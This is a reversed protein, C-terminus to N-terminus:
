QTPLQAVANANDNLRPASAATKQREVSRANPALSLAPPCCCSTSASSRITPTTPQPAAATARQQPPPPAPPPPLPATAADGLGYSSLNRLFRALPLNMPSPGENNSLLSAASGLLSTRPQAFRLPSSSKVALRHLEGSALSSITTATVATLASSSTASHFGRSAPAVANRTAATTVPAPHGPRGHLTAEFPVTAGGEDHAAISGSAGIVSISTSSGGTGPRLRMPATVGASGRNNANTRDAVFRGSAAFPHRGASAISSNSDLSLRWSSECSKSQPAAARQERIIPIFGENEVESHPSHATSFNRWPHQAPMPFGGDDVYCRGGSLPMSAGGSCQDAAVNSLHNSHKMVSSRRSVSGTDTSSPQNVEGDRCERTTDSDDNGCSHRHPGPPVGLAHLIREGSLAQMRSASPRNSLNLGDDSSLPDHSLTRYQALGSDRRKAEGADDATGNVAGARPAGRLVPSGKPVEAPHLSAPTPELPAARQALPLTTNNESSPVESPHLPTPMQEPQSEQPQPSSSSQSPAMPTAALHRSPLAPVRMSSTHSLAEARAVTPTLARMSHTSRMCCDAERRAGGCSATSVLERPQAHPPSTALPIRRPSIAAKSRTSSLVPPHTTTSTEGEDAFVGEQLSAPMLDVTTPFPPMSVRNTTQLPALAATATRSSSGSTSPSHNNRMSNQQYLTDSALCGRWTGQARACMGSSRYHSSYTKNVTRLASMPAKRQIIPPHPVIASGNNGPVAPLLSTTSSGGRNSENACDSPEAQATRAGSSMMSPPNATTSFVLTPTAGRVSDM